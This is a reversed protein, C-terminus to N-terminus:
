HRTNRQQAHRTPQVNRQKSTERYCQNCQYMHTPRARCACRPADEESCINRKVLGGSHEHRQIWLCSTLGSFRNFELMYILPLGLFWVTNGYRPRIFQSQNPMSMWAELRSKYNCPASGARACICVGQFLNGSCTLMRDTMQLGAQVTHVRLTM